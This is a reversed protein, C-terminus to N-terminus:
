KNLLNKGSCVYPSSEYTGPPCSIFCNSTYYYQGPPCGTCTTASGSCTSCPPSCAVFTISNVLFHYNNVQVDMQLHRFAEQLVHQGVILITYSLLQPQVDQALAQLEWVITVLLHVHVVSALHQLILTLPVLQIAIIIIIYLILDGVDQVHQRDQALQM